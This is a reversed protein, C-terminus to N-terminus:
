GLCPGVADRAERVRDQILDQCNDLLGAIYRVDVFLPAGNKGLPFYPHIVWGFRGEDEPTEGDGCAARSWRFRRQKM